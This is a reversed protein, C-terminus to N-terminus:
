RREGVRIPDLIWLVGADSEYHHHHHLTPSTNLSSWPDLPGGSGGHDPCTFSALGPRVSGSEAVTFATKTM